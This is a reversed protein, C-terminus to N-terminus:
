QVKVELRTKNLSTDFGKNEIILNYRGTTLTKNGSLAIDDYELDTFVVFTETDIAYGFSPNIADLFKKDKLLGEVREVNGSTRTVFIYATGEKADTTLNLASSTSATTVTKSDAAIGLSFNGAIFYILRDGTNAAVGAQAYQVTFMLAQVTLTGTASAAGVGVQMSYSGNVPPADFVLTYNGAGNDFVSIPTPVGNLKMSFAASGIEGLRQSSSTTVIVDTKVVDNTFVSLSQLTVASATSTTSVTFSLTASGTNLITDKCQVNFTRSGTGTSVRTEHYTSNTFTFNKYPDSNERFTCMAKENTNVALVVEQSAVVGTSSPKSFTISPATTDIVTSVSSSWSSNVGALNRSHVRAYYTGDSSLGTVTKNTVNNVWAYYEPSTFDSNNDVQLSYNNVGSDADTSQTWNFTVTSTNTYASTQNMQPSSPASTDMLITYNSPDGFNGAADRAKVHFYLRGDGVTYSRDWIGDQKLDRVEVKVAYDATSSTNSCTSASEQCQYSQTSTDISTNSAALRINHKNNDDGVDGMVGVFFASSAVSTSIPVDVTYSTSDLASSVFALDQSADVILSINSANMNFSTPAAQIAYVRFGMADPSETSSEALQVTVRLVDNASVNSRVEIFVASANGTNNFKVVHSKGDNFSSSLGSHDNEAEPVNDPITTSNTDLVYSFSSVGSVNDSATWNFQVLSSSSWTNQAVTSNVLPATPSSIDVVIGDSTGNHSRVGSASIARVEFTYNSGDSLNLGYVRVDTSTGAYQWTDNIRRAYNDFAIRYEWELLIGLLDNELDSSNWRAHLSNDINTYLGDDVVTPTAPASVDIGTGSINLFITDNTANVNGALDRVEVIVTKNANGDSLLWSKATSCVEWDTFAQNENAFRCDKVGGSATTATGGLTDNFSVVLTVARSFTYDTSVNTFGAPSLGYVRVSANPRTNDLTINVAPRLVNGETDNVTATLRKIGDSVNNLSSISYNGTYVGDNAIIDSAVGDDPLAIGLTSTNDLRKLETSNITVNLFVNSGAYTFTVNVGNRVIIPSVTLEGAIPARYEISDNHEQVNGASDRAQVVVVKLGTLASLQWGKTSVC